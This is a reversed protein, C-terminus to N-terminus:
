YDWKSPGDEKETQPFLWELFGMVAEFITKM